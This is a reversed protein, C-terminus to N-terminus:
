RRAAASSSPAELMEPTIDLALRVWQNQHTVKVHDLLAKLFTWQEPTMQRRTKPDALAVGGFFRFGDLLAALELASKASDCEADLALKINDGDPQGALSLSRVSRAARDFEPLSKFNAYFSPPLNVTRAVAFMPAGAVREIRARMAADPAGAGSDALVSSPNGGGALSIRQPSQFELAAPPAGPIEYVVRAGRPVARGTRLAYAAIKKEDFRGDAISLIRTEGALRGSSSFGEPWLAIALRDLDRSYDFGTQRVFEAYERDVRPGPSTLGLLAAWPSHQLGRLAAVDLYAVVPADAPLQRLLDPARGAVPSALNGRLRYFYVGAGGAVVGLLIGAAILARQRSSIPVISKSYLNRHTSHLTGLPLSQFRSSCNRPFLAGSSGGLM